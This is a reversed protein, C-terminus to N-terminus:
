NTLILLLRTFFTSNACPLDGAPCQGAQRVMLKGYPSRPTLLASIDRAIHEAPEASVSVLILSALVLSIFM